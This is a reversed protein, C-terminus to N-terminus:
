PQITPWEDSLITRGKPLENYPSHARFFDRWFRLVAEFLMAAPAINPLGEQLGMDVVFHSYGENYAVENFAFTNLSGVQHMRIQPGNAPQFHKSGNALPQMQAYWISRSDLWDRFARIDKAIGLEKRKAADNKLFDKWIWEHLHYATIVFNMAHRASSPNECFDDFEQVLKAYFQVPNAIGFM